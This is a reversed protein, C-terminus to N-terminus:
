FMFAAVNEVQWIKATKAEWGKGEFETRTLIGRKRGLGELRLLSEFLRWLGGQIQRHASCGVAWGGAWDLSKPSREDTSARPELGEPLFTNWLSRMFIPMEDPLTLLTIFPHVLGVFGWTTQSSGQGADLLLLLSAPKGTTIWEPLLSVHKSGVWKREIKQM